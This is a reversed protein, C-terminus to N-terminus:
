WCRSRDKVCLVAPLAVMVLLSRRAKLSLLVAPLAVIVVAAPPTVANKLSVEPPAARIIASAPPWTSM